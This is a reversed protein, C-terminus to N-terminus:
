TEEDKALVVRGARAIAAADGPYIALTLHHAIGGAEDAAEFRRALRSLEEAFAAIADPALRAGVVHVKVTGAPADPLGAVAASLDSRAFSLAVKHPATLADAEPAVDFTEAAAAYYKEVNRRTVRTEVLAILGAAELTRMHRTLNAPHVGMRAAIQSATAPGARLVELITMRTRHLYAAIERETTLTKHSLTEM